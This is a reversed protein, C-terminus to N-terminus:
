NLVTNCCYENEDYIHWNIFMWISFLVNFLMFVLIGTGVSSFYTTLTIIFLGLLFGDSWISNRFIQFKSMDKPYNDTLYNNLSISFSSFIAVEIIGLISDLIVMLLPSYFYIGSIITFGLHIFIGIKFMTRISINEVIYNNTKVALTQIISFVSIVYAALYIGKLSTLIPVLLAMGFAVLFTNQLRFKTVRDFENIKRYNRLM